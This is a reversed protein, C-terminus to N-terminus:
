DCIIIVLRIMMGVCPYNCMIIENMNLCCVSSVVPIPCLWRNQTQLVQSAHTASPVMLLRQTVQITPFFLNGWIKITLDHEFSYIDLPM